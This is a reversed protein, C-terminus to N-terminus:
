KRRRQKGKTSLAKDAARKAKKPTKPKTPKKPKRAATPNKEKGMPPIKAAESLKFSGKVRVLIKDTVAKKLYRRIIPNIKTPDVKYNATIFQKIATRSSGKRENLTKIANKVMSATSSPHTSTDRQKRPRTAKAEKGPVANSM